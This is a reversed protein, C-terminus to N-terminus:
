ALIESSYDATCYFTTYVIVPSNINSLQTILSLGVIDMDTLV